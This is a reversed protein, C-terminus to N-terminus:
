PAKKEVQPRLLSYMALDLLEGDKISARELVADLKWGAKELVRRSGVNNAFSFDYM